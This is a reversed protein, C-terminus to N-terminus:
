TLVGRAQSNCFVQINKHAPFFGGPEIQGLAIKGRLSSGVNSIIGNM